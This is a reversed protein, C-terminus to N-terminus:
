RFSGFTVVALAAPIAAILLGLWARTASRAAFVWIVAGGYILFSLMSMWLALESRAGPLALALASALLAALAYGGLLGAAIRWLLSALHASAIVVRADGVNALRM